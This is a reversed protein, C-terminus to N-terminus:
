TVPRASGGGGPPSVPGDGGTASPGLAGSLEERRRIALKAYSSTLHTEVTRVAVFLMDAIERNTRGAAALEVVRREGPTLAAPGRLADRRPRAGAVLLEQRARDVLGRAGVAQAADLAERLTEVALRKARRRRLAAGLEVLAHARDLNSGEEALTAVADRLADLAAESDDLMGLTVLARGVAAGAGWRRALGLEERALATAADVEGLARLGRAAVSRWPIPVPNEVRWREAREGADRALRVATAADGLVLRLRARSYLLPTGEWGPAPEGTELGVDMLWARADEARGLDIMADVMFAAALPVIRPDSRHRLAAKAYQVAPAPRGALHACKAQVTAGFAAGALDGRTMAVETWRDIHAQAEDAMGAFALVLAIEPISAEIVLSGAPASLGARAHAIAAPRDRALAALDIALQGRVAAPPDHRRTRDRLDRVKLARAEQQGPDWRMALLLVAELEEVGPDLALHERAIRSAEDPRGSFLLALALHVGVCTEGMSTGGLAVAERFAEAAAGPDHMLAVDGLEALVDGHVDDGPPEAVARQLLRTAVEAAGEARAARAGERLREVVWPDRDAITEVLHAAVLEPRAGLRHLASAASRHARSRTPASMTADVLDRILPHRFTITRGDVLLGADVIEDFARAGEDADLDAHARVLHHATGDGFVAASRALRGAPRSLTTLVGRIRHRLVEPALDRAARELDAGPPLHSLERVLETVLLPNGGARRHCETCLEASASPTLGCRVLEGVAEISLTALPLRHSQALLTEVALARRRTREEDDDGDTSRWPDRIAAVLLVPLTQLRASLHAIFRLSADDAWQVDDVVLLLPQEAATRAVWRHVGNMMDVLDPPTEECADDAWLEDVDDVGALSRVTAWPVDQELPTARARLVRMGGAATTAACSAELLTTKGIGPPGSVVVAAGSGLRAATRLDALTTWEVDRELLDPGDM